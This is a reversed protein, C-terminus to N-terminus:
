SWKYISILSPYDSEYVKSLEASHKEIFEKIKLREREILEQRPSDREFRYSYNLFLVYTNNSKLGELSIKKPNGALDQALDVSYYKRGKSFAKQFYICDDSSGIVTSNEPIVSYVTEFVSKRLFVYNYHKEIAFFSFILM